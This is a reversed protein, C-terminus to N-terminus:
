FKNCTIRAFNNGGANIEWFFFCFFIVQRQNNFILRMLGSNYGRVEAFNTVLSAPFSTSIDMLARNALIFRGIVGMRMLLERSIM